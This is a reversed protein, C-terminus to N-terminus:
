TSRESDVLCFCEYLFDCPWMTKKRHTPQQAATNPLEKGTRCGQIDLSGKQLTGLPQQDTEEEVVEEVLHGPFLM